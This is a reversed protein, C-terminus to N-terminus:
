RCVGVGAPQGSWSFVSTCALETSCDDGDIRCPQMCEAGDGGELCGGGAGCGALADPVECFETAAAHDFVDVCIALASGRSTLGPFFACNQTDPCDSETAFPDCLKHCTGESSSRTEGRCVALDACVDGDCELDEGVFGRDRICVGSDPSYGRTSTRTPQCSRSPGCEASRPFPACSDACYGLVGTGASVCTTADDCNSFTRASGGSFDCIARCVFAEDLEDTCVTGEECGIAPECVDGIAAVDSADACVSAIIAGPQGFNPACMETDGCRGSSFDDCLTACLGPANREGMPLVPACTLPEVCISAGGSRVDCPEICRNRFCLLGPGCVDSSVRDPSGVDLDCTEGVAASGADECFSASRTGDLRCTQGPDCLEDSITTACDGPLCVGFAAREPASISEPPRCASGAPCSSDSAYACTSLCMGREVDCVFNPTSQELISCPAEHADCVAFDDLGSCEAYAASCGDSCEFCDLGGDACVEECGRASCAVNDGACAACGASLPGDDSLCTTFCAAIDETEGCLVLCAAFDANFGIPDSLVSLDERNVCPGFDGCDIFLV